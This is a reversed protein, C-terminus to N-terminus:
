TTVRLLQKGLSKVLVEREDLIEGVLLAIQEGAWALVVVPVKRKPDPATNGQVIALVDGLRVASAAQGDVQITERNEASRIEDM